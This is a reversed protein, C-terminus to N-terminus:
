KIITSKNIRLKESDESTRLSTAQLTLRRKRQRYWIDTVKCQSVSLITNLSCRANNVTFHPLNVCMCVCKCEGGERLFSFRMKSGVLMYTDEPSESFSIILYNNRPFM